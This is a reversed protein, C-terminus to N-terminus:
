LWRRVRLRYDVYQSGFKQELYREEREIVGRHMVLMILPLLLFPWITNFFISIGIYVIAMALYIPNRSFSYPWREVIATTPRYPMLATRARRLQIVAALMLVLAVVIIVVGAIMAVRPQLLAVPNSRNEYLGVALPVGFILPPPAIVGANDLNARAV